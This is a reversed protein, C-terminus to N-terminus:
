EIIKKGNKIYIDKSISKGKVEYGYLSYKKNQGVKDQKASDIATPAGLYKLTFNDFCCWDSASHKDKRIGIRINGPHELSLRITNKYLGYRNFADNAETVNDPYTYPVMTYQKESGGDYISMVTTEVDNAYFVANLPEAGDRHAAVADAISGCRYFSQVSLEYDGKPMNEIVQYFEFPTNWFEAVYGNAQTFNVSSAWGRTGERFDNNTILATMDVANGNEGMQKIYNLYIDKCGALAKYAEAMAKVNQEFTTTTNLADNAKAIASAIADVKCARYYMEVTPLMMKVSEWMKLYNYEDMTIKLISGHQAAVNGSIVAPSGVNLGHEDMGCMKYGYGGGSYNIYALTWKDSGIRRWQTPAEIAQNNEGYHFDPTITWQCTGSTEGPRPILHTATARDFGSTKECKYIMVYQKDVDNWVIDADIVDYGPDFYLAPRTLINLDKDILSYYIRHRDPFGVSYYMVYNGSENDYIVQPAWAATMQEATIGGLAELNEPSELDIKVNKTWHVLDPSLMLVMIHNSTWGLRSTMDTGALMFNGDHMRTIYSDRLGGTVTNAKTDFVEAGGLIDHWNNGYLSLAYNTYEGNRNMHAFLYAGMGEDEKEYEPYSNVVEGSVDSIKLRYINLSYAPIELTAHMDDDVSVAEGSTPVIAFPEDMTNEDTGAESVLRTVTGDYIKMNQVILNLTKPSSNPNVVKVILEESEEDIQVSQYLARETSLTFEHVVQNDLLCTIKNGDVRVEIDYWRNDDVKGHKEAITVKSGNTCVEVGHRTNRWGGINWWAYNQNDKYNFLILFGENGGTKMARVKYIYNGNLPVTMVATCNEAMSTQELAENNVNWSGNNVEWDEIGLAFGDSMIQDGNSNLIKVDDFLVQTGWTGLGVRVESDIDSIVNGSEQWLLNQKGLNVNMLKQVYYSPTVFYDSANFHIMDYAWRPDKEHTFIPAFSAMRCVDSNREMGLMYIAEGLASNMNGYKGYDGSNAAYEGNYVFPFRPYNDYKNYNSRMWQYTRYYHEDVIEVPHSNGWSPNDTGWAEVNGITIIEPYKAKIADYFLIYRKAYESNDGPSYNENGIEVFKLNYPEAHGNAIRMAGWKTDAGGNAYEIADLVDQVLILTSDHSLTFGHGLGINVVFMPAAGLDECMQLYEDFGLGDSSWYKWNKNYHGPREEIPGITKKWQFANGYSGEGEVYCGGPFRLFAPRTDALLQALDSRLGNSRNKWTYPFLSVVDLDLHGNTGTLLLLQGRKDSATAKIKVALKNWGNSNITGQLTGAGLITKGDNSRLQAIIKDTFVADGKVWLSLNYTSDKVVNIGWYGSNAVGKMNSASAGSIVVSLAHAQAENLLNKTKLSMSAGNYVTWNALGDEFSRNSVLEAYLGGDGAHNIEEFFLGNHYPGIQPGRRTADITMTVQSFSSATVACLIGITLFRKM